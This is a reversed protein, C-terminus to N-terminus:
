KVFAIVLMVEKGTLNSVTYGGAAAPIAFTETYSFKMIMGNKTEVQIRDGEVLNLVHCKNNTEIYASSIIHYRWVDYYHLPHTPLHFKKWGPGEALLKPRSIFDNTIIEGKRSFDLNEM